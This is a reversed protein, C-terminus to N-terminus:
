GVFSIEIHNITKLADHGRGVDSFPDPRFDASVWSVADAPSLAVGPERNRGAISGVRDLREWHLPKVAYPRRRGRHHLPEPDEGREIQPRLVFGEQQHM